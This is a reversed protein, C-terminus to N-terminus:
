YVSRLQDETLIGETLCLSYEQEKIFNALNTERITLSRLIFNHPIDDLKIFSKGWLIKDLTNKFELRNM